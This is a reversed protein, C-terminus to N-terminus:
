LEGEVDFVEVYQLVYLFEFFSEQWDIELDGCIKCGSEDIKFDCELEVVIVVMDEDNLVYGGKYFNGDCCFCSCELINKCESVCM